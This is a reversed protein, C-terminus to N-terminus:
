HSAANIRDTVDQFDYLHQLDLYTYSRDPLLPLGTDFLCNFLMRFTNVPTQSPYFADECGPAYIANLIRMKENMEEDTAQSWDFGHPQTRAPYPGEDGQLVIVPPDDAPYHSLIEDVLRQIRQNILQMQALYNEPETHSTATGPDRFSGDANFVFPGHPVLLHAFLFFPRQETRALGGFLELQYNIRRYKEVDLRGIGMRHLVPYAATTRLLIATFEPLFQYAYNRDAYPNEATANWAPGAHLYRYGLSKLLRAARHETLLGFVPRWDSSNPGVTNALVDVHAMNLSSALSQATVLYNARSDDAVYFGRSRLFDLTPGNDFGYRDALTQASAYRDFIIYYIDPRREVRRAVISEEPLLDRAPPTRQTAAFRLLTVASFGIMVSVVLFLVSALRAPPAPARAIAVAALLFALVFVPLLVSPGALGTLGAGGIAAAVHGYAFFVFWGLALAVAGRQLGRLAFALLPLALVTLLVVAALPLLTESAQFQGANSAALSLVPAVAFLFPLLLTRTRM